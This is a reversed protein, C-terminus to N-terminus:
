EAKRSRLTAILVDGPRLALGPTAPVAAAAPRMVLVQLLLSQDPHGPLPTVSWRRVFATGRPAAAGTGIWNGGADVYDVFGAADATLATAPSPQLGSGGSPSEPSVSLDSTTDTVPTGAADVFWALSTLQEIRQSALATALTSRRALQNASIAALLVQAVSVLATAVLATAVLAEVLSFGDQGRGGRRMPEKTM